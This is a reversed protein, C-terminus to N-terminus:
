GRVECIEFFEKVKDRIKELFERPYPKVERMSIDLLKGGARFQQLYYRKAGRIEEAINIIDEEQHLGPVVTTRFEYDLGSQMIFQISRKINELNVHVGAAKEYSTKLKSNQTKLNTKIDMAAYDVLGERILERLKDPSTGNTDIKVEFRLDKIKRLFEPLDNHLLPEGGTVCVGELLGQRSRLFDFFDLESILTPTAATLSRSESAGKRASSGSNVLEPNYCFPCRFNCGVTFVACALKGPYDILTLKQLGGILM